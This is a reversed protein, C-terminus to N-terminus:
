LGIHHAQLANQMSAFFASSKVIRPRIAWTTKIVRARILLMNAEALMSKPAVDTIDAIYAIFFSSVVRITEVYGLM